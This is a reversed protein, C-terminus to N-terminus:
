SWRNSITAPSAFIVTSPSRVSAAPSAISSERPVVCASGQFAPDPSIVERIVIAGTGRNM